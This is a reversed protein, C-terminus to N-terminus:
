QFFLGPLRQSYTRALPSVPLNFLEFSPRDALVETQEAISMVGPLQSNSNDEEEKAPTVVRPDLM